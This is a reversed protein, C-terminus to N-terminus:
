KAAALLLLEVFSHTLLDLPLHKEFVYSSPSFGGKKKSPINNKDSINIKNNEKTQTQLPFSSDLFHRCFKPIYNGEEVCVSFVENGCREKTM